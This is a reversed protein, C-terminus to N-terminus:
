LLESRVRLHFRNFELSDTRPHLRLNEFPVLAHVRSRVFCTRPPDRPRAVPRSGRCSSPTRSRTCTCGEGPTCRLPEPRTPLRSPHTALRTKGSSGISPDIRRHRCAVSFTLPRNPKPLPRELQADAFACRSPDAHLHGYPQRRWRSRHTWRRVFVSSLALSALLCRFPIPRLQRPHIVREVQGSEGPAFRNSQTFAVM